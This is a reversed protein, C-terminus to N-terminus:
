YPASPIPCTGLVVEISFEVNRNLLIGLLEKPFVHPFMTSDLVYVLYAYEGKVIMKRAIVISIIYNKIDRKAGSIFVNKGDKTLLRVGRSKCEVVTNHWTLLSSMSPEVEETTQM